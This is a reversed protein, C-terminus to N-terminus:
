VVGAGGICPRHEARSYCVTSHKARSHRYARPAPPDVHIYLLMSQALQLFPAGWNSIKQGFRAGVFETVIYINWVFRLQAETCSLIPGFFNAFQLLSFILRKSLDLNPARAHHPHLSPYVVVHGEWLFPSFSKQLSFQLVICAKYGCAHESYSFVQLLLIITLCDLTIDVFNDYRCYLMEIDSLWSPSAFVATNM